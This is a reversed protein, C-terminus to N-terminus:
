CHVIVHTDVTCLGWEGYGYNVYAVGDECINLLGSGGSRCM